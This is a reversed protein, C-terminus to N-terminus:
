FDERFPVYRSKRAHYDTLWIVFSVGGIVLGNIVLITSAPDPLIASLGFNFMVLLVMFTSIKKDM